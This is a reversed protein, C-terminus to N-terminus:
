HDILDAYKGSLYERGDQGVSGRNVEREKGERSWRDLVARVFHWSRANREVALIIADKIWREPLEKEFDKLEETIRPTMGGIYEEFLQYINRRDPLIEVPNDLDGPVWEGIRVLTVAVRGRETHFFYLVETKDILEADARLLTQREVTRELAKDLIAEPKANPDIVALGEMLSDSNLFDRRRLYRYDGEKQWLWSYAYMTVKLEALDDIIPLLDTFFRSPLRITSSGMFDSNKFGEFKQM